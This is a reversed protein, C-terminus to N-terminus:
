ACIVWRFKGVRSRPPTHPPSTMAFQRPASISGRAKSLHTSLLAFSAPHNCLCLVFITGEVKHVQALGRPRTSFLRAFDSLRIRRSGDMRARFAQFHEAEM